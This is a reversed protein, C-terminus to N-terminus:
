RMGAKVDRRQHLHRGKSNNQNTAQIQQHDKIQQAQLPQVFEYM